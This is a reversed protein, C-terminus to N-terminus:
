RAPDTYRAPVYGETGDPARVHLWTEGAAASEPGIEVLPTNEPWAKLRDGGQPSRRLYLGDGGTNAVLFARPPPPAPVPTPEAAPATAAPAVPVSTFPLTATERVVPSASRERTLPSQPLQNLTFLLVTGIAVVTLALSSYFYEGRQSMPLPPLAQRPLEWAPDDAPSPSAAAAPLEAVEAAAPAAAANERQAALRERGEKTLHLGWFGRKTIYILRGQELSTLTRLLQGRAPCNIYNHRPLAAPVIGCRQAVSFEDVEAGAGSTELAAIVSLIEKHQRM